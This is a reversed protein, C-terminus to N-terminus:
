SSSNYTDLRRPPIPELEKAERQREARVINGGVLAIGLLLGFYRDTLNPSVPGAAIVAIAPYVLRSHINSTTFVPTVLSILIGILAALGIFGVAAAVQVYVNHGNFDVLNFGTGLWPHDLATQWVKAVGELRAQDSGEVPGAGLLRSLADQGQTPAPRQGLVGIATVGSIAVTLALPISREVAPVLLILGVAVVLAARSGSTLVGVGAGAVAAGCIWNRWRRSVAVWLFPVLSLTLMSTYGLANPHQSLGLNRTVGSSPIGYMVSIANGAAYAVLLWVLVKGRPAWWVILIPLVVFTFIVRATYYYVVPEDAAVSSLMGISMFALSALIFAAPLTIPTGLLRPFALGIAVFFLVDSIGLFSVNLTDAPALAFALVMMVVSTRDLGLWAILIALVVIGAIGAAYLVSEMAVPIMALLVAVVLAPVTWTAHRLANSGM